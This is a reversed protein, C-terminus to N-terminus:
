CTQNRFGNRHYLMRISFTRKRRSKILILELVASQFLSEGEKIEDNMIVEDNLAVLKRMELFITVYFYFINTQKNTKRANCGMTSKNEVAWSRAKAEEKELNRFV